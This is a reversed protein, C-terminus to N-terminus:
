HSTATKLALTGDANVGFGCVMNQLVLGGMANKGRIPANFIILMPDGGGTVSSMFTFSGALQFSSPDNMAQKFANICATGDVEPRFRYAEPPPEFSVSACGSVTVAALCLLTLKRLM